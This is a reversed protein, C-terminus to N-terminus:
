PGGYIVDLPASLLADDSGVQAQVTWSGPKAFRQFVSGAIPVPYDLAFGSPIRRAPLVSAPAGNIRGTRVGPDTAYLITTEYFAAGSPSTFTLKVTVLRPPRRVKVRVWLDRLALFDFRTATADELAAESSAFEIGERFPAGHSAPPAAAAAGAVLAAALVLIRPWARM